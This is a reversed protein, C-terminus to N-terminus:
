AHKSDSRPDPFGTAASHAPCDHAAQSRHTVDSITAGLYSPECAIQSPGQTVQSASRPRSMALHRPICYAPGHDSAPVDVGGSGSLQRPQRVVGGSARGKM